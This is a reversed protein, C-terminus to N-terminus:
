HTREIKGKKNQYCKNDKLVPNAKDIIRIGVENRYCKNSTIIARSEDGCYFGALQNDHSENSIIAPKAAGFVSIGNVSNSCQNCTVTGQSDGLIYIGATQNKECINEELSPSAKGSLMIGIQNQNCLNKRAIGGANDLFWIGDGRNHLCYNQEVVVQSDGNLIIGFDNNECHNGECQSSSQNLFIIGDSGNRQCYNKRITPSGEIVEIGVDQNDSCVNNSIDLASNQFVVIGKKNRSCRNKNIYGGSNNLLTIGHRSNNDIDNDELEIRSNGKLFVGDNRNNVFRNNVVKSQSDGDMYLGCWNNYQFSCNYLKLQSNGTADIGYDKHKIFDSYTIESKSEGELRVGTGNNMFSCKEIYLQTNHVVIAMSMNDSFESNIIRAKAERLRLGQGFNFGKQEDNYVGGTIVCNDMDIQGKIVDIVNTNECGQSEIILDILKYKYDGNLSLCVGNFNFLIRSKEKENGYIYLTKKIEIHEEVRFTGPGLKIESNEPAQRLVRLLAGGDTVHYIYYGDKQEVNFGEIMLNTNKAVEKNLVKAWTIVTWRAFSESIGFNTTLKLILREVLLEDHTLGSNKSLEQPINVKLASILLNRDRRLDPCREILLRELEYYDLCNEIGYQGILDALDFAIDRELVQM